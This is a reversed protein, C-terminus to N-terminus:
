RYEPYAGSLRRYHGRQENRGCDNGGASDRCGQRCCRSAAAANRRRAIAKLPCEAVKFSDLLVRNGASALLIPFDSTTHHGGMDSRTMLMQDAIASRRAWSVREGRSEMIMAGLDILSRGVLERAAGEPAAGTMRAYLADEISRSLFEPNSFNNGTGPERVGGTKTRNAQDALRDFVASRFEDLSRGDDILGRAFDGPINQSACIEYAVRADRDSMRRKPASRTEIETSRSEEITTDDHEIIDDDMDNGKLSRIFTKPDAPIPVFSMEFPEWDTRTVILVGDKSRSEESAYVRYGVSVNPPTGGALDSAIPKVDDRASLRGEAILRGSEIRADTVIGIQDHTSGARHSDLLPAAGSTLRQMRVAGPALSLVELYDGDYGRRRVPTETAIVASFSGTAAHFSSGRVEARRVFTQPAPKTRRRQAPKTM